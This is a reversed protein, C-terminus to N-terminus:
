DKACLCLRKEQQAAIGKFNRRRHKAERRQGAQFQQGLVPAQNLHLSTDFAFSFDSGSSGGRQSPRLKTQGGTTQRHFPRTLFASLPDWDKKKKKVAVLLAM